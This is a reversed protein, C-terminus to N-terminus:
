GRALVAGAAGTSGRAGAATAAETGGYFLLLQRGGGFLAPFTVFGAAPCAATSQGNQPKKYWWTALLACIPEYIYMGLCDQVAM